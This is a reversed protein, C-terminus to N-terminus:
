KRALYFSVFVNIRNSYIYYKGYFLDLFWEYSKKQNQIPELKEIMYKCSLAVNETIDEYDLIEFHKKLTEQAYNIRSLTFVDSLIFAGDPKMVRKVSECFGDFNLYCHSSEVNLIFDFSNDAFKELTEADDVIFECGFPNKQCFEINFENIDCGIVKSFDYHKRITKTGGGRGCGIDLLNKNTVVGFRDVLHCYLSASSELLIDSCKPNLPFYGHNMLDMEPSAQTLINVDNYYEIGAMRDTLLRKKKM